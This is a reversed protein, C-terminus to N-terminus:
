IITAVVFRFTIWAQSALMRVAILWKLKALSPSLSPLFIFYNKELITVSKHIVPPTNSLYFM